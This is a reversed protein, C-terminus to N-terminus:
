LIGFIESDMRIGVRLGYINKNRIILWIWHCLGGIAKPAHRVGEVEYFAYYRLIQEPDLGKAM